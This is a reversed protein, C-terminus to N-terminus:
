RAGSPPVGMGMGMGGRAGASSPSKAAGSPAPASMVVMDGESLGELVVMNTGDTGGVKVVREQGNQLRVFRQRGRSQMAVLPVLLVDNQENTVIEVDAKMGSKLLNSKEDKVVIEVDFTVVSSTEVGLPSVRDVTGAFVKDAYADVRIDVRQGIQVRGIQAQDVAGIIRLNALNAVTMVATGGSVSTLASAVMTGKEVAVSLVTGAIPAYITMEKLLNEANAVALDATKVSARSAGLQARKLTVNSEAVATAHQAIRAADPSGLGLEASKKAVEESVKTNQAEIESQRLAATATALDARVRDRSVKAEELDRQSYTPDLKVLVQGAEVEDGERVLVELVQGSGRSKVEVQVDPEIKGSATATEVLSGRRVPVAPGVAASSPKTWYVYGGVAGGALGLL